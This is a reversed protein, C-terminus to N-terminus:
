DQLCRIFKHGSKTSWISYVVDRISINIASTDGTNTSSWWSVPSMASFGFDDTGRYIIDYIVYASDKSNSLLKGAADSRYFGYGDGYSDKEVVGGSVYKVLIDWDSESPLRWGPPCIGRSEADNGVWFNRNYSTDLGMATAWDYVQGLRCGEDGCWRGGVSTEFDLNEAMWTQTGIQIKKYRKGDRIDEFKTGDDLGGVVDTFRKLFAVADGGGNEVGGDNCGVCLFVGVVAFVAALGIVSLNMKKM